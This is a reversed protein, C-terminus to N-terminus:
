GGLASKETAELAEFNEGYLVISVAIGTNAAFRSLIMERSSIATFLSSEVSADTFCNFLSIKVAADM